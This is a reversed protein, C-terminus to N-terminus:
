SLAAEAPDLRASGVPGATRPDLAGVAVTAEGHPAFKAQVEPPLATRRGMRYRAFAALAGSVAAIFLFLAWGGGAAMAQSALLPGATAGIAWSLLM